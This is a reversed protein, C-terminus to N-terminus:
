SRNSAMTRGIWVTSNTSVAMIQTTDPILMRTLM